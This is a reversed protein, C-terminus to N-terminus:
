PTAKRKGKSSWRNIGSRPIPPSPPAEAAERLKAHLQELHADVEAPTPFGALLEEKFAEIQAADVYRPEVFPAVVQMTPNGPRRLMFHREPQNVLRDAARRVQEQESFYTRGSEEEREIHDVDVAEIDTETVSGPEGEDESQHRAVSHRTTSSVMPEFFTRTGIHKVEKLDLQGPYIANVMVIADDYEIGGFVVKVRANTMVASALQGDEGELHTLRQHFLYLHVNRKAMRDLM